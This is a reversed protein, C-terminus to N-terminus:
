IGLYTLESLFIDVISSQAIQEYIEGHGLSGLQSIAAGTTPTSAAEIIQGM